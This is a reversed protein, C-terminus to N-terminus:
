KLSKENKFGEIQLHGGFDICQKNFFDITLDSTM